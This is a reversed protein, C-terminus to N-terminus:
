YGNEKLFRRCDELDKQWQRDDREISYTKNAYVLHCVKTQWLQVVSHCRVIDEPFPIKSAVKGTRTYVPTSDVTVGHPRAELKVGPMLDIQFLNFNQEWSEDSIKYVTRGIKESILNHRNHTSKLEEIFMERRIQQAMDTNEKSGTEDSNPLPLMPRPNRTKSRNTQLEHLADSVKPFKCRSLVAPFNYESIWTPNVIQGKHASSNAAYSIMCSGSKMQSEIKAKAELVLSM